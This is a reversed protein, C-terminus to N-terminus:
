ETGKIVTEIEKKTAEWHDIEESNAEGIGMDDDNKICIIRTEVDSLYQKALTLLDDRQQVLERVYESM